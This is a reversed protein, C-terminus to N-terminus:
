RGLKLAMCRQLIATLCCRSGRVVRIMKEVGSEVLPNPAFDDTKETKRAMKVGIFAFFGVKAIYSSGIKNPIYCFTPKELRVQSALPYESGTGTMHLICFALYFRFSLERKSM